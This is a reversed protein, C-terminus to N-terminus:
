LPWKDGEQLNKIRDIKNKLDINPDGLQQGTMCRATAKFFDEDGESAVENILIDKMNDIAEDSMNGSEYDDRLQDFIQNETIPQTNFPQGIVGEVPPTHRDRICM